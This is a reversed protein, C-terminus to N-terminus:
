KTIRMFKLLVQRVRERTVGEVEAVLEINGSVAYEDAYRRMVFPAHSGSYTFLRVQVARRSPYGHKWIHYKNYLYIIM